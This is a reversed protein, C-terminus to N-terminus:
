LGVSISLGIVTDEDTLDSDVYTYGIGASVDDSLSKNLSVSATTFDAIGWDGYTVAVTASLGGGLCIHKSASLEYYEDGDSDAINFFISASLDLGAASTGLGVAVESLNDAATWNYHQLGVSLNVNGGLATSAAVSFAQEDTLDTSKHGLGLSWDLGAASTSVNYGAGFADEGADTGRFIYNSEHSGSISSEVEANAFGAISLSLGAISLTRKFSMHLETHFLNM